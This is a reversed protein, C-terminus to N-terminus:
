ETVDLTLEVIGAESHLDYKDGYLLDLRRKILDIKDPSLETRNESECRFHLKEGNLTFFLQLPRGDEILDQILSIFLLPSVFVNNLNGETHIEFQAGENNMQMATLFNNLFSIESRLLVRDRNCDYLQYRLLQGLKMLLETAKKPDTKVLASANTLTKSLFAPTIQGKLKNVESQHHEYEMEGIQRRRSIWQQLIAIVSSGLVCISAIMSSSLNDVLILPNTYSTIRHPLDLTTRVFYETGVSITPLLFVAVALLISYVVYRGKLLFKPVLYYYNFLLIVAFVAFAFLCILYILNGLLHSVDQFAIFMLNFTTIAGVIGFFLYRWVRYKPDILLPHFIYNSENITNM